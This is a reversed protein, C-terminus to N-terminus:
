QCGLSHRGRTSGSGSDIGESGASDSPPGGASTRSASRKTAALPLDGVACTGASSAAGPHLRPRLAPSQGPATTARFELTDASRARQRIGCIACDEDEAATCEVHIFTNRLQVCHGPYDCHSNVQMASDGVVLNSGDVSPCCTVNRCTMRANDVQHHYRPTLDPSRLDEVGEEDLWPCGEPFVRWVPSKARVRQPSAPGRGGAPGPGDTACSRAKWLPPAREGDAGATAEEM